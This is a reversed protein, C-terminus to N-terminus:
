GYAEEFEEDSMDDFARVFKVETMSAGKMMYRKGNVHLCYQGGFVSLKVEATDEWSVFPNLEGVKLEKMKSM